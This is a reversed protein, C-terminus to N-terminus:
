FDVTLGAGWGFISERGLGGTIPEQNDNNWAARVGVYGHARDNFAYVMDGGLTAYSYANKPKGAVQDSDADSSSLSGVSGSAVFSWNKMGWKELSWEREGALEVSWQEMVLDYALSLSPDIWFGKYQLGADVEYTRDTTPNNSPYWSYGLALQATLKEMLPWEYGLEFEEKTYSSYQGNISAVSLHAQGVGLPYAAELNLIAVHHAANAGDDM